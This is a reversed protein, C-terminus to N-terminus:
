HIEPFMECVWQKHFNLLSFDLGFGQDVATESETELLFTLLLQVRQTFGRGCLLGPCAPLKTPSRM